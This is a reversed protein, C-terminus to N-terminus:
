QNVAITVSPHSSPSVTVLVTNTANTPDNTPGAAVIYRGASIGTFVFSGDAKTTTTATVLTPYQAEQYLFVTWQGRPGANPATQKMVTGTLSAAEALPMPVNLVQGAAVTIVKSTPSTGAGASATITYTGPPIQELRFLGCSAAPVSASVVTYTSSGSNLSVTAEGLNNGVGCRTAGGVQTVTGTVVATSSQLATSIGSATITAGLSGPTVNGGADLAVSVTQSALDSRSFTLTYTGPLPLGGARWTGITNTATGSEQSDTVTQVTLLGNTV